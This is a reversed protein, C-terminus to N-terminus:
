SLGRMGEDRSSSSHVPQVEIPRRSRSHSAKFLRVLFLDSKRRSLRASYGPTATLDLRTPIDFFSRESLNRWTDSLSQERHLDGQAVRRELRPLLEGFYEKPFVQEQDKRVMEYVIISEADRELRKRMCVSWIGLMTTVLKKKDEPHTFDGEFVRLIASLSEQMDAILTLGCKGDFVYMDSLGGVAMRAWQEVRCWGRQQYTELNCLVLPDADNHETPPAIAVFYKCASSYVAVSSISLNRANLNAQPISSYDVWVYLDGPDLGDNSCLTDAAAMMARFHVGKADPEHAGLWQHSFFVTSHKSVFKLLETYTDLMKLKGADRLYEHSVLKGIERLTSLRVFAVSFGLTAVNVLAEDVQQDLLLEYDHQAKLARLGKALAWGMVLLFLVVGIGALALTIALTNFAASAVCVGQQEEWAAYDGLTAVTRQVTSSRVQGDPCIQCRDSSADRVTDVPCACARISAATSQCLSPLPCALPWDTRGHVSCSTAPCSNCSASVGRGVGYTGLPCLACATGNWLTGEACCAATTRTNCTTNALFVMVSNASHDVGLLDLDGDGDTDAHSIYHAALGYFITHNKWKTGFGDVNEYWRFVGDFFSASAVDMDGDGDIDLATVSLVFDAEGFILTKNFSGFGDNRWLSVHDNGNSAVVLDNDGDQDIDAAILSYAGDSEAGASIIRKVPFQGTGDNPYWSLTDDDKSAAALDLWRDGDLDAAIVTRVGIVNDDVVQKIECFIGHDLNKFVSIMNDGSSATIIDLDGDQDLDAVTVGQGENVATSVVHATFSGTGDNEFWRVTSDYYSAGIVDIKGDQNIDGVTVIRSGLSSWTIQQKISFRPLGTGSDVGLNRFWSVANDNSSASVLDVRGDGDLDAGVVCRAGMAQQTVRVVDPLMTDETRGSAHSCVNSILAGAVCGAWGLLTLLSAHM